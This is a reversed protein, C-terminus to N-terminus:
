GSRGRSTIQPTNRRLLWAGALLRRRLDAWGSRTLLFNTYIALDFSRARVRGLGADGNLKRIGERRLRVLANRTLGLWRRRAQQQNAVPLRGPVALPADLALEVRRERTFSALLSPAEAEPEGAPAKGAKVGAVQLARELGCLRDGSRGAGM